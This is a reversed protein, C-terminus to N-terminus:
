RCRFPKGPLALSFNGPPETTAERLRLGCLLTHVDDVSSPWPLCKQQRAKETFARHGLLSLATLQHIMLPSLGPSPGGCVLIFSGYGGTQFCPFPM